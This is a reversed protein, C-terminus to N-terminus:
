NKAKIKEKLDWKNEIKSLIYIRDGIERNGLESVKVIAIDGNKNFIPNSIIRITRFLRKLKWSVFRANTQKLDFEKWLIYKEKDAIQKQYHTSDFSNDYKKIITYIPYQYQMVEVCIFGKQVKNGLSDTKFLSPFLRERSYDGDFEYDRIYNLSVSLIRTQVSDLKVIAKFVEGIQSKTEVNQAKCFQLTGILAFLILNKKMHSVM